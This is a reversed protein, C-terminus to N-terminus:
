RVAVPHQLTKIDLVDKLSNRRCPSEKFRRPAARDSQRLMERPIKPEHTIQVAIQGCKYIDPIIYACLRQPSGTLRRHHKETINHIAARLALFAKLEDEPQDRFVGSPDTQQGTIV